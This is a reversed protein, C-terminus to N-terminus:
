VVSKRDLVAATFLLYVCVGGVMGALPLGLMERVGARELASVVSLCCLPAFAALVIYSFISKKLDMYKEPRGAM